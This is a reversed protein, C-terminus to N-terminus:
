TPAAGAMLTGRRRYGQTQHRGPRPRRRARTRAPAAVRGIRRARRRPRRRLATAPSGTPTRQGKPWPRVRRRCGPRTTAWRPGRHRARCQLPAAPASGGTDPPPLAARAQCSLLRVPRSRRRGRRRPPTPRPPM